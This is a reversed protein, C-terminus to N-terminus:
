RKVGKEWQLILFIVVSDESIEPYFKKLFLVAEERNKTECDKMLVNDPISGLRRITKTIIKVKGILREGRLAVNRIQGKRYDHDKLRITSFHLQSLKKFKKSFAIPKLAVNMM